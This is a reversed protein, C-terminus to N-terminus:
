YKFKYLSNIWKKPLISKLKVIIFSIIIKPIFYFHIKFAPNMEKNIQYVENTALYRKNDSVGGATIKSISYPIYKWQKKTKYLSFFLYFDACYKYTTNFGDLLISRRVIVSQHSFPLGKWLQNLNSAKMTRTYGTDYKIDCDGYIVTNEQSFPIHELIANTNFEDGANMFILWTGTANNIGKNMADYIGSDKESSWKINDNDLSNLYEKTGDSSDGDIIIHQYNKDSQQSVSEITQKLGLFNNYTVTIISLLPSNLNFTNRTSM